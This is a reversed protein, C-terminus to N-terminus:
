KNNILEILENIIDQAVEKKSKLDFKKVVGLKNIINIKNTDHGFGAGEDQLSNLVIFDLNKKHIKSIANNMENNTELAFGILIQNEKKNEGLYKAIDKNKILHLDLSDDNKKIKQTAVEAPKYDAVAASLIAIDSTPFNKTAVEFMQDASQVEITNIRKNRPKLYTPGLILTVEAGLNAAYEAIEIGMKGSSRNGIYRVPDIQEFTPGATILIKKNLLKKKSQFFDEIFSVITEPEAMRGDGILGSALEGHGVPIIQVNDNELLRMNRKTSPHIWMDLDMAPAIMVPCKASLYVANLMSDCIGNAMKAMTNATAPAIIICDAWLGLEVHNNWTEENTVDIYVPNKSLTSLTLPAIFETANSTMVVKVSAGAKILMRVLIASKYAAISGSIGVVIKKDKLAKM